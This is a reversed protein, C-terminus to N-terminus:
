AAKRPPRRRRGRPVPAFLTEIDTGLEHALRSRLRQYRRVGRICMSLEQRRCKFKRALASISKGHRILEIRIETPTM